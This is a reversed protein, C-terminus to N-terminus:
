ERYLGNRYIYDEVREPVLYKISKGERIREKVGTSSIEIEPNNIEVIKTVYEKRLRGILEHLEQEKYGAQRGRCLM